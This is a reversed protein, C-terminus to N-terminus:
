SIISQHAACQAAFHIPDQSSPLALAAKMLLPPLMAIGIHFASHSWGGIPYAAFLWGSIALVAWIQLYLGVQGNRLVPWTYGVMSLFIRSQNRRPIVKPEFLQRYICDMNFLLNALFYDLQGSTGYSILASAVHIFSNDLRRSWHEIRGMGPPLRHAYTWHYLFSFPAHVVIAAVIAILPLPPMAYLHPFLRSSSFCESMRENNFESLVRDQAEMILEDSVWMGALLFYVCVFPNPLITIANWREQTPTMDRKSVYAVAKVERCNIGAEETSLNDVSNDDSDSFSSDETLVAMELEDSKGGADESEISESEVTADEQMEMFEDLTDTSSPKLLPIKSKEQVFTVAKEDTNITSEMTCFESSTDSSALATESKAKSSRRLKLLKM